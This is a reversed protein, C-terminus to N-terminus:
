LAELIERRKQVYEEETILGQAKLTGLEQLRTATSSPSASASQSPAVIAINTEEVLWAQGHQQLVQSTAELIKRVNKGNRREADLRAPAGHRGSKSVPMKSRSQVQLLAASEGKSVVNAVIQEGWTMAGTKGELRCSLKDIRSVSLGRASLAGETLARFVVTKPYSFEVEDSRVVTERIGM